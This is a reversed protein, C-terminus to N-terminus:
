LQYTELQPAETPMQARRCSNAKSRFAENSRCIGVEPVWPAECCALIGNLL